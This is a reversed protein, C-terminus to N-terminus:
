CARRLGILRRLAGRARRALWFFFQTKVTQIAMKRSFVCFSIEVDRAPRGPSFAMRSDPLYQSRAWAQLCMKVVNFCGKDESECSVSLTVVTLVARCSRRRRHRNCSACYAGRASHARLGARASKGAVALDRCRTRAPAPEGGDQDARAEEHEVGHRRSRRQASARGRENSRARQPPRARGQSCSKARSCQLECWRGVLTSPVSVRPRAQQGCAGVRGRVRGCCDHQSSWAPRAHAVSEPTAARRGGM